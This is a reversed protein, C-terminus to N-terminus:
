LKEDHDVRRIIGSEYEVEGKDNVNYDLEVAFDKKWDKGLHREMFDHISIAINRVTTPSLPQTNYSGVIVQLQKELADLDVNIPKGLIDNFM